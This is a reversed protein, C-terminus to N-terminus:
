PLKWIFSEAIVRMEDQLEPNNDFVKLCERELRNANGWEKCSDDAYHFSAQMGDERFKELLDIKM